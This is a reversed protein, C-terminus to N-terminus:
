ALDFYEKHEWDTVETAGARGKTEADCRAIEAQKIRLFYDVFADGFSHASCHAPRATGRASRRAIAAPAAGGQTEYPTDASPGPISSARSATSAPM